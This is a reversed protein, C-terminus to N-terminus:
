WVCATLVFVHKLGNKFLAQLIVFQESWERQTCTKTANREGLEMAFIALFPGQLTYIWIWVSLLLTNRDPQNNVRGPIFVAVHLM